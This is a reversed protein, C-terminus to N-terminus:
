AVPLPTLLELARESATKGEDAKKQGAFYGALSGGARRNEFPCSGIWPFPPEPALRRRFGEIILRDIIFIFVIPGVLLFCLAFSGPVLIAWARIALSTSSGQAAARQEEVSRM